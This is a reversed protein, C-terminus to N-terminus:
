SHTEDSPRCPCSRSFKDVCGGWSYYIKSTLASCVHLIGTGTDVYMDDVLSYLLLM